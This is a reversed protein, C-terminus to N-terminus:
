IGGAAALAMGLTHATTSNLGKEGIVGSDNDQPIGL